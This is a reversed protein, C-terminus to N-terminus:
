PESWKEPACLFETANKPLVSEKLLDLDRQYNILRTTGRIILSIQRMLFKLPFSEIRFNPADLKIM